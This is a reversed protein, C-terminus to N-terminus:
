RERGYQKYETDIVQQMETRLNEYWEKPAEAAEFADLYIIKITSSHATRNHEDLLHKSGTIVV